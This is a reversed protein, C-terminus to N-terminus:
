ADWALRVGAFLQRRIPLDWNRFTPTAVRTRSAWSGGRLTRYGAGFFAESYERYPFAVFGPYGGFVDGTWEWVDGLLGLVGDRSATELRPPQPGHASLDLNLGTPEQDWTAATEWELETPLRAGHARAFADAEFWSLHMVPADAPREGLQTPGGPHTIDYEEKWAWGEDSWWERREYGGGESFTLFSANTVPTRGIRFPAVRAAHRPRENDYAFGARAAGIWRDGGAIEVWELGTGTAPDPPRADRGAAWPLGALEATQLMTEGHQHEHRLVLEALMGDGAGTRELVRLTRRRVAELYALAEARGLLPLDGRVMRPTEFADYMALLDERLLPEGGHRHGIWLDEYAAIHGLDWILPSLYPAHQTSVADDDLAAVLSLTRERAEALDDLLSGTSPSACASSM